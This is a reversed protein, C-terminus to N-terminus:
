GQPTYSFACGGAALSWQAQVIYRHGHNLTVNSGDARITGFETYCLDGIESTGQDAGYWGDGLPDSVAEFLEHAVISMESDAYPDGNPSPYEGTTTLRACAAVDSVYAFIRMEQTANDQYGSHYGCFTEGGPAFTCSPGDHSHNCSEVNYGTFVFFEAGMGGSWKNATIARTVADQVDTDLLPDNQTGAHPYPTTDVYTGGLSVGDSIPGQTDWYQTLVDYYPTGGVDNFFQSMLSEYRKDSGGPELTQGKPLWFILYATLSHMVQGQHYRFNSCNPDCLEFDLSAVRSSAVVAHYLRPEDNAVCGYSDAPLSLSFHGLKDTEATAPKLVQGAAQLAPDTNWCTVTANPVVSDASASTVTGALTGPPPQLGPCTVAGVRATISCDGLWDAAFNVVMSSQLSSPVDVKVASFGPATLTCHYISAVSVDLQYAGSVSAQASGDDCVIKAGVGAIQTTGAKANVIRRAQITGSIHEQDGKPLACASLTALALALLALLRLAWSARTPFRTTM